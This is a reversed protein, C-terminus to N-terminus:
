AGVANLNGSALLDIEAKLEPPIARMNFDYLYLGCLARWQQYIMQCIELKKAQAMGQYWQSSKFDSFNQGAVNHTVKFYNLGRAYKFSIPPLEVKEALDKVAITFTELTAFPRGADEFQGLVVCLDFQGKKVCRFRLDNSIIKGGVPRFGGPLRGGVMTASQLDGVQVKQQPM